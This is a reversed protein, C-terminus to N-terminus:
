DDLPAPVVTEVPEFTSREATGYLTDWENTVDYESLASLLLEGPGVYTLSGFAWASSGNPLKDQERPRRFDLVGGIADRSAVALDRAEEYRNIPFQRGDGVLLGPGDGELVSRVDTRGSEILLSIVDISSGEGNIVDVYRVIRGGSQIDLDPDDTENKGASEPQKESESGGAGRGEGDFREAMAVPEYELLGATALDANVGHALLVGDLTISSPILLRLDGPESEASDELAIPIPGLPLSELSAALDLARDVDDEDLYAASTVLAGTDELPDYSVRSTLAAIRARIQELRSSVDGQELEDRGRQTLRRGQGPVKETLGLDDLESLTLRITRDKIEYGHLQMLEVLQISGIPSHRDVLRLLDYTRRDLEPAM